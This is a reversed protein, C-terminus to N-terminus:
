GRRGGMDYLYVVVATAFDDISGVGYAARRTGHRDLQRLVTSRAPAEIEPVLVWVRRTSGLADLDRRPISPDGGRYQGVILRPPVSLMAPAFQAPGGPGRRLPWLGRTQASALASGACRCELYYRLQPQATYYVYVVDHPHQRRAIYELVPKMENVTPSRAVDRVAPVAIALAVLVAVAAAVARLAPARARAASQAIGEALLLVYVPVLFLQTRGLLPYQGLAWAILMFVVPGVLMLARVPRRKVLSVFGVLCLAAALVAIVRGADFQGLTLHPVGAIYRFAGLSTRLAGTDSFLGAGSAPFVGASRSLSHRVHAVNGLSTAAFIGFSAIWVASAASVHLTQRRDRLMVARGFLASSVGALVFVSSHSLWIGAAGAVAFLVTSRLDHARDSSRTGLLLLVVAVALDVAYQKDATAYFVAPGSFALLGLALTAAARSVVDRALFWLLVLAVAGAAFPFLRLTYDNGGFTVVVLKQMALFGDPAAQNFDLQGFLRSWPRDVVNLALQAEDQSLSRCVLLEALRLGLGMVILTLSGLRVLRLPTL